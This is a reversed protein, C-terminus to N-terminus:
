EARLTIAPDVRSARLAPIFAALAAVAILLVAAATFSAPDYPSLDFLLTGLYRASFLAGGLGAVSGIAVWMLARMLFQMAVDRSQAGVAMRIGIERTRQTVQYACIAYLGFAALLTGIAAFGAALMALFRARQGFGRLRDNMPQIAVPLNSDAAAIVRRAGAAVAGFSANTRLLAVTERSIQRGDNMRLVYYESFPEGTLGNNRTDGVVGVITTWTGDDSLAVRRGVPNELGFWRRALRNSLIMRQESGARDADAFARGAILPIEMVRFYDPTIRRFMVLGGNEELPPRGEIRINSYPRGSAGQPPISDSLAVSEVGPIARLNREISEVFSARALPNAYRQQRLTFAATMVNGPQFGLNQSEMRSLSKILLAAGSLLILSLAIQVAALPGRFRGGSPGSARASILGASDPQSLSPLLGALVSSVASLLVAFALVRLDVTVRDLRM